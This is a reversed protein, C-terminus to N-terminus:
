YKLVIGLKFTNAIPRSSIVLFKKTLESLQFLPVQEYSARSILHQNVAYEPSYSIRVVRLRQLAGSDPGDRWGQQSM